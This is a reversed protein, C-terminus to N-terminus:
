RLVDIILKDNYIKHNLHFSSVVSYMTINVTFKITFYRAPQNEVNCLLIRRRLTDSRLTLHARALLQRLHHRAFDNFQAIYTRMHATNSWRHVSQCTNWLRQFPEVSVPLTRDQFIYKMGFSPTDWLKISIDSIYRKFRFDERLLCSLFSCVQAHPVIM